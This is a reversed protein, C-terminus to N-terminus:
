TVFWTLTCTTTWSMSFIHTMPLILELLNIFNQFYKHLDMVEIDSPDERLALCGSLM